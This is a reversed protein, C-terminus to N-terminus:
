PQRQLPADVKPAADFWVHWRREAEALAASASPMARNFGLGYGATVCTLVAHMIKDIDGVTERGRRYSRRMELERVRLKIPRRLDVALEANSEAISQNQCVLCRLKEALKVARAQSVPDMQTPVADAALVALSSLALLAAFALRAVLASM